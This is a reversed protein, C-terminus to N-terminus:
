RSTNLSRGSGSRPNGGGGSRGQSGSGSSSHNHGASSGGTKLPQTYFPWFIGFVLVRQPSIYHDASFYDYKKMPWGQGVNEVKVFLCARKWQMNVFADLLLGNTYEENNQNHFVGLAPNYGPAYWKTNYFGNVGIQMQLVKQITFQFYYKVNASLLPLPVVEQNTSHQFLIRHDFHMPGLVFDQDLRASFISMPVTNQQIISRADYFLNNNLLSYGATLKFRFRPIAISGQIKTTSIKGFENEWIYHNSYYHQQYFDPEKLSTEFHANVSIPSKRAKRFPYINFGLNANISFDNAEYGMFNYKGLADWFIYESIQGEAGAYAYTSNWVVNSPKNLFTPDMKYFNMLKDGIGVDLKSVVGDSSWPQLRLFVKNDLRMVRVSDNTTTPNYNFTNDYFNRGVEDTLKDYYKRWITTYESSHGIFATTVNDDFAEIQGDEASKKKLFSFPIRYQQDLFFTNKKVLSNADELNIRIEKADVTTDRVWFNDQIGGNEERGALNYIYGAHMMYKKGLYNTNFVLTKNRTSEKLLYGGGGYRNFEFTVNLEPTINQSTFIRINDTEKKPDALLSGWYALETFPTKTNFFHVNEVSYTWSELADYFSVGESSKRKFFDYYQVPSGPVGLWTANVDEKRLPLYNFHNNSTTDIEKIEFKHFSRDRTWRVVRKYWMTDNLAFTELIRPTAELVSDKYARISDKVEMLSDARAQKVLIIQEHDYKRREKDSLGAYWQDFALKVAALSDVRFVSDIMNWLDTQGSNMLSDRMWARCLSDTLVAYYQFRFSDTEALLAPPVITDFAVPRNKVIVSDEEEDENEVPMTLSDGFDTLSDPVTLQVEELLDEEWGKKYGKIEYIVTDPAESLSPLPCDIVIRDNDVNRDSGIVGSAGAAVVAIPFWIKSLLSNM